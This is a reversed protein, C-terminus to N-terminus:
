DDCVVFACEAVGRRHMPGGVRYLWRLAAQQLRLRARHRRRAATAPLEGVATLERDLTLVGEPTAGSETAYDCVAARLDRMPMDGDRWEVVAREMLELVHDGIRLPAHPLEEDRQRQAVRVEIWSRLREHRLWAAHTEWWAVGEEGEITILALTEDSAPVSGDRRLRRPHRALHAPAVPERPRPFGPHAPAEGPEACAAVVVQVRAEFAALRAEARASERVYPPLVPLAARPRPVAYRRAVLRRRAESDRWGDPRELWEVLWLPPLWSLDDDIRDLGTANAAEALATLRPYLPRARRVIRTAEADFFTM